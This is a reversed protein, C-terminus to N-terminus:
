RATRFLLLVSALGAGISCVATIKAALAAEEVQQRIAKLNEDVFDIGTGDGMDGIGSVAAGLAPILPVRRRRPRTGIVM